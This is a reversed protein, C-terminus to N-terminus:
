KRHYSDHGGENVREVVLLAAAQRDSGRDLSHCTSISKSAPYTKILDSVTHVFRLHVWTHLFSLSICTYTYIFTCHVFIFVSDMRWSEYVWNEKGPLIINRHNSTGSWLRVAYLLASYSSIGHYHLNVRTFSVPLSISVMRTYFLWSDSSM